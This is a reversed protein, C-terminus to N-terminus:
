TFRTAPIPTIVQGELSFFGDSILFSGLLAVHALAGVVGLWATWRPLATSGFVLAAYSGLAIATPAGSQALLGFTLDYLLRPDGVDADRYVLVFFATFGALLTVFGIFGFAFCASAMSEAANARRLRLWVGAGFM